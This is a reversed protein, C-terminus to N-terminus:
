AGINVFTVGVTSARGGDDPSPAFTVVGTGSCPVTINVPIAATGYATFDAIKVALPPVVPSPWSLSAVISTADLGTYGETSTIPPVVLQVAVTQNPLPHGSNAAGGCLVGITAGSARMNVLGQFYQHPGVATAAAPATSAVAAAGATLALTTLLRVSRKTM